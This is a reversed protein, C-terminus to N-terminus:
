KPGQSADGASCHGTRGALLQGPFPLLLRRFPLDKRGGLWLLQGGHVRDRLLFLLIDWIGEGSGLSLDSQGVIHKGGTPRLLLLLRINSGVIGPHCKPLLRRGVVLAPHRHDLREPESKQGWYGGLYQGIVGIILSISAMLGGIRVPDLGLLQMEVRRGLYTPLFTTAGQFSFGALMQICVLLILAPTLFGNDERAPTLLTERHRGEGGIGLKRGHILYALALLLGVLSFSPFSSRWGRLSALYGALLPSLALGINGLAGVIGFAKGREQFHSLLALSCPHYLSCFLGLLGLGLALQLFTTSLSILLASLSSGVLYLFILRRAGLRDSLFGAPLAGLGFAFNSITGLLGLLFYGVRFEKMILVLVAPYILMYGHVLAHSLGLLFVERGEEAKL